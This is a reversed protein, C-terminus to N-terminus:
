TTAAADIAAAAEKAAAAQEEATPAPAPADPISWDFYSDDVYQKAAYKMAAEKIDDLLSSHMVPRGKDLANEIREILADVQKQVDLTAVTPAVKPIDYWPTTMLQAGDFELDESRFYKFSESAKSFVFPGHKEFYKVLAGLKAGKPLANYLRNAFVVAGRHQMAHGIAHVAARQINRDQEKGNLRVKSILDLMANESAQVFVQKPHTNTNTNM